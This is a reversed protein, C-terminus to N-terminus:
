RSYEDILCLIRLRGGNDTRDPGVSYIVVGTPLRKLRLPEGDFPDLPVTKLLGATVLADLSKPWQGQKLRYREAALAAVASRMNAQM